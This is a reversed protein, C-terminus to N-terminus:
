TPIQTQLRIADAIREIELRTLGVSSPLSMGKASLCTAIPLVQGREYIPQTHVPPFLPRTDIGQEYLEHMLADRSLGFKTEDILISYLWYVNYAWSAEPPLTLGPIDELLEQYISAIQRKESLISDIREMQAVGLAAQLNTLRYNYGVVPHWYRREPSMGHDRLVRIKEALDTRNTTVMGGEGTTIIKNGYFSFVGMDALSGTRQGKYQAGHAEAADEIVALNHKKAIARIPDMDAPHGYLHVPIIAKTNPTIAEAVQLPDLNWTGLESDVFVPTAGTYTVANASAIFTLSPVIVEDGPGIDFALLALHLATTGNSTAIACDTGCFEAFMEEFQTVFKGASSVWGTLVCESVYALENAGLSPEAVPLRIRHDFFALDVVRNQEDLLPVVRVAGSLMARLEAIPVGVKATRPEPRLVSAINTALGLGGLLARRIDGDTVLGVFQKTEPEILLALGLAGQDIVQMVAKISSNNSISINKIKETIDVTTDVTINM